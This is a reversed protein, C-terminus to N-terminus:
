YRVGQKNPSIGKQSLRERELSYTEVSNKDGLGRYIEIIKDLNNLARKNDGRSSDVAYARLFFDLAKEVDNVKLSAVGLSHLDLSVNNGKGIKKDISLSNEYLERAKQYDGKKAAVDGLGRFSDAIEAERAYDKNLKLADNFAKEADELKNSNKYVAGLINLKSGITHNGQKRDINVAKELVDLADKNNGTLYYYRGLSAYGESLILPDNLSVGTKIARDFVVRADDFRNMLLYLRGLNLLNVTVGNQNDISTNLKLSKQFEILAKDYSESEVAHVGRQNYEIAEIQVKPLESKKASACGYFVTLLLCYVTLLLFMAQRNRGVAYQRSCVGESNQSRFESKNM